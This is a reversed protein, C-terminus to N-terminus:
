RKQLLEAQLALAKALAGTRLYAFLLYQKYVVNGPALAVAAALPAVADTAKHQRLLVVGLWFQAEDNAADAAVAERLLPLAWMAFEPAGYRSMADRFKQQSAPKVPAGIGLARSSTPEYAPLPPAQRAALQVPSPPVLARSLVVGVLVLACAVGAVALRAPWFALGDRLIRLSTAWGGEGLPDAAALARVLREEESARVPTPVTNVLRRRLWEDDLRRSFGEVDRDRSSV